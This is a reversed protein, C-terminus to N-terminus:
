VRGFKLFSSGSGIQEANKIGNRVFARALEVSEVLSRGLALNATIASSLACGTGHVPPTNLRTGDFKTFEFKPNKSALWDHSDEQLHGGKVLVSKCKLEEILVKAARKIGEETSVDIGTIQHTEPLNPTVLVAKSCLDKLSSLARRELLPTGDSSSLVPDIVLPVESNELSSLGQIVSRVIDDTALMGVKIANPTIDRLLIRLQDLVVSPFLPLVSHVKSTDQLTLATPVAAGHLGFSKFVQLDMQLGAGGTPDSGAISLACHM